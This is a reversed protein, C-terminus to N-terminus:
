RVILDNKGPNAFNYDDSVLLGGAKLGSASPFSPSNILELYRNQESGSAAATYLVPSAGADLGLNGRVDLTAMPSDTGIGVNGGLNYSMGSGSTVWPGSSFLAYPAANLAQRPSLLQFAGTSSGARVGLELWRAGGDFVGAGFDLQVTFVGNAVSVDDKTVTAGKQMGSMAADFLTFQLDYTGNAPTAGDTLQGQYTFASNQGAAAGASVLTLLLVRLLSCCSVDVIRHM